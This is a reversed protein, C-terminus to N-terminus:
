ELIKSWVIIYIFIFCFCIIFRTFANQQSKLILILVAFCIQQRQEKAYCLTTTESIIGFDQVMCCNLYFPLLYNSKDNIENKNLRGWPGLNRFIIWFLSKINHLLVVDISNNQLKLKSGLIEFFANIRNIM